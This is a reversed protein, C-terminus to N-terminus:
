GRCAEEEEDNLGEISVIDTLKFTDFDAWGDEDWTRALKMCAVGESMFRSDMLYGLTWRRVVHDRDAIDLWEVVVVKAQAPTLDEYNM